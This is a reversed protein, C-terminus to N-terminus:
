KDVKGMKEFREPWTFNCSVSIRETKSMFPYVLHNLKAPFFYIDGEKPQLVHGNTCFNIDEGYQFEIKGATPTNSNVVNEKKFNEQRIEEPVKLYAVCSLKAAHHHRPNWEGAKMYNIWLPLQCIIKDEPVTLDKKNAKQAITTYLHALWILEGSIEEWLNKPLIKDDILFAYEEKINGALSKRFDTKKKLKKSKRIKNGVRLLDSRTEMSLTTRMIYPGFPAEWNYNRGEKRM